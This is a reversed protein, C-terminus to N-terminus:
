NTSIAIMTFSLINWELFFKNKKDEYLSSKGHEKLSKKVSFDQIPLVGGYLLNSSIKVKKMILGM